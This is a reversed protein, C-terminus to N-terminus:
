VLKDSIKVLDELDGSFPTVLKVNVVGFDYLKASLKFDFKKDGITLQKEGMRIIYPAQTYQIYKPTLKTYALQAEAPKKGFVKELKDLQIESAIDFSFYLIISGDKIKM